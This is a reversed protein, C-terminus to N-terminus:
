QELLLGVLSMQQKLAMVRDGKGMTTFQGTKIMKIILIVPDDM